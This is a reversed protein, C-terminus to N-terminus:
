RSRSHLHYLRPSFLAFPTQKSMPLAVRRAKSPHSRWPRSQIPLVSGFVAPLPEMMRSAGVAMNLRWMSGDVHRTFAPLDVALLLGILAYFSLGLIAIYLPYFITYVYDFVYFAYYYGAFLLLGAWM